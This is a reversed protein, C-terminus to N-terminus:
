KAEPKFLYLSLEQSQQNTLVVKRGAVSKLMVDLMSEGLSFSKLQEQGNEPTIGLVVRIAPQRYVALLRVKTQGLVGVDTTNGVVPPATVNAPQRPADFERQKLLLAVALGRNLERHEYAAPVSAVQYPKDTLPSSVWWSLYFNVGFLLLLVPVLKTSIM